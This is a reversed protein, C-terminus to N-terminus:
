GAPAGGQTLREGEEEGKSVLARRGSAWNRLACAIAAWAAGDVGGGVGPRISGLAWTDVSESTPKEVLTPSRVFMLFLTTPLCQTM